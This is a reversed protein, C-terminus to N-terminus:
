GALAQYYVFYLRRKSAPKLNAVRAQIKQPNKELSHLLYVKIQLGCFAQLIKRERLVLID